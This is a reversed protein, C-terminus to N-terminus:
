GPRAARRRSLAGLLLAGAAWLAASRPEPVALLPPGPADLRFNDLAVQTGVPPAGEWWLALTLVQPGTYGDRTDAGVVSWGSGNWFSGTLTHGARQLRLTGSRDATPQQTIVGLTGFHTLYGENGPVFGDDSIREMALWPTAGGSPLVSLGLRAQNNFGWDLLRYDIRADFDGQVLPSFLLSPGTGPGQTFRLEGAVVAIGSDGPQATWHLASLGADFTELLSDARANAAALALGAGLGLALAQCRRAARPCWAIRSPPLASRQPM